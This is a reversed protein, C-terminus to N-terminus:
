PLGLATAEAAIADAVWEKSREGDIVAWSPQTAQRLYSERVRELMALDREYRDRGASKRGVATAPAIDLLLTRSPQPLYKQIEALWAPDLGQAEGYAISSALYRDAIVITGRRLMGEIIGRREYRNAVFLIQMVDPAFEREGHLAHQIEQGIPTTYDPFTIYEAARGQSRLRDRLRMAQTEKGSQDLGEFAILLSM